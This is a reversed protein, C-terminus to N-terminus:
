AIGQWRRITSREIVPSQRVDRSLRERDAFQSRWLPAIVGSSLRRNAANPAFEVLHMAQPDRKLLRPTQESQSLVHARPNQTTKTVLAKQCPERVAPVTSLVDRSSWRRLPSQRQSPSSM